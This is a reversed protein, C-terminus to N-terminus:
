NFTLLPRSAEKKKPNVLWGTQAASSRIKKNIACGDRRQFCPLPATEFRAGAGDEFSSSGPTSEKEERMESM